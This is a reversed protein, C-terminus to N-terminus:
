SKLHRCTGYTKKNRHQDGLAVVALARHQYPWAKTRILKLMPQVTGSYDASNSFIFFIFATPRKM